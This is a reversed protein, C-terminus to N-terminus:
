AGGGGCRFGGGFEAAAGEWVSHAVVQGWRAPALGLLPRRVVRVEVRAAFSQDSGDRFGQATPCPVAAFSAPDAAVSVHVTYLLATLTLDVAGSCADSRLSTTLAPNWLDLTLSFARSHYALLYLRPGLAPPLLGLPVAGGALVFTAGAGGHRGQGGPPRRLQGVQAGAGGGARGGVGQAWLWREPFAAGWNKELHAVGRGAVAAGGGRVSFDVATGLSLVYWHLRLLVRPLWAAPGEPGDRGAAWPEVGAGAASAVQFELGGLVGELEFDGAGRVRLTCNAGARARFCPACGGCGGADLSLPGSLYATHRVLPAGAAAGPARDLLLFCAAPPAPDLGAAAAGLPFHGLVVAFSGSGHQV